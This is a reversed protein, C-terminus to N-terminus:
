WGAGGLGFVLCCHVMVVVARALGRETDQTRFFFGSFGGKKKGGGGHTELRWVRAPGVRGSWVCAGSVCAVRWVAPAVM